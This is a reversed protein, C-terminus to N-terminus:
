MGERGYSCIDCGRGGMPAYIVDGGEWLLM